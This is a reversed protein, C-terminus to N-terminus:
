DDAGRVRLGASSFDFCLCGRRIPIFSSNSCLQRVSEFRSPIAVLGGCCHCGVFTNLICNEDVSGSAPDLAALVEGFHDRAEM